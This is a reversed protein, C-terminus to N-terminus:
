FNVGGDLWTAAIADNVRVSLCCHALIFWFRADHGRSRDASPGVARREVAHHLSPRDGRSVQRDRIMVSGEEEM